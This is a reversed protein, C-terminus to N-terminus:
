PCGNLLANVGAILENVEVSGSGNADFATCSSLATNGLAINVGLIVENVTVSGDAGCDGTCGDPGPTPEGATCFGRQIGGGLDIAECRSQPSCVDFDDCARGLNAPECEGTGANCTECGPFCKSADRTCQGTAFDCNDTCPNGDTDPCEVPAPICLITTPVGPVPVGFTTCTGTLCNIGADCPQGNNEPDGACILPVGPIPVLQQCTGCGSACATGPEADDGRCVIGEEPDNQCRDNVTCENFDDCSGGTAPTGSCEGESCMDNTTCESGDDCQQAFAAPATLLATLTLAAALTTRNTMM